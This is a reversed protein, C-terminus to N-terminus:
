CWCSRARGTPLRAQRARCFGRFASTAQLGAVHPETLGHAVVTDDSLFAESSRESKFGVLGCVV